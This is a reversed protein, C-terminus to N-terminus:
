EDAADSTYLLCISAYMTKPAQIDNLMKALKTEIVAHATAYSLGFKNNVADISPEATNGVHVVSPPGSAGSGSGDVSWCPASDDHQEGFDDSTSAESNDSLPALMEPLHSPFIVEGWYM